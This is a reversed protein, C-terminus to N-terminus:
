GECRAGEVLGEALSELPTSAIIEAIAADDLPDTVGDSCLLYVDGVEVLRTTTDPEVPGHFGVSQTLIHKTPM